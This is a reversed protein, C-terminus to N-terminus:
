RASVTAEGEASYGYREIFGAWRRTIEDHLEPSMEYRNTKYGAQAAVYAELEPQVEDFGSLELTDYVRRMQGLVDPVLDEYRVECFRSPTILRRDREFVEYMRNFTDFVHDELNAYRPVQFGWDRYLRRWLNLTSPFIVYPDRVIHVFRADPFLELLPKIRCTHAPSKLVMRKPTRLTLCKLFWQLSEKWHDLAEPSIGELDLYDQHQPPRNPFAMTLYPSPVGMNCLAFEDEQPHEWSLKMNDMPRRSPMLFRLMRPFVGGTLYFHNPAFCSFNDPYSHRQDLVLLEHLLTTGSRWHGLIFIPHQEIQTQRIKAGYVLEQIGWLSTNVVSLGANIVAMAFCKPSIAFHNAAFLRFCASVGMGNWFRPIWFRDKYGGTSNSGTTAQSHAM